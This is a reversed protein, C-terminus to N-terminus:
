ALALVALSLGIGMQVCSSKASAGSVGEMRLSRRALQCIRGPKDLLPFLETLINKWGGRIGQRGSAQPFDGLGRVSWLLPRLPACVM